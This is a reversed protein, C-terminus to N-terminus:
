SMVNVFTNGVVCDKHGLIHTKFIIPSIFPTLFNSVQLDIYMTPSFLDVKFEQDSIGWYWAM